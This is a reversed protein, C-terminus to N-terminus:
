KQAALKAFYGLTDEPPDGGEEEQEEAPAATPGASPAADTKAAPAATKEDLKVGEATTLPAGNEGLVEALKRALDAYSKYEKPDIFERLSYLANFSEELRKEDGGFLEEPKDFDSKDYNRYGEVQRIKLRFNCGAWFDFPNIPVEGPFKPQMLDVVKDFIKKGFKYLFQKGDNAPVAPDSIVLINAVYHLRRKRARVTAKDEERGSNWLKQNMEGVPDKQGLSSLSKEIYWRGTPGKFGHDWYRVWPLDEGTPAPLFRIIAFGNGVKDVTPAWFRKDEYSKEGGGVKEAAETLRSIDKSRNKKLEAFTM